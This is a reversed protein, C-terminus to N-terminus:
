LKWEVGVLAYIGPQQYGIEETNEQDFLNEIRGYLTFEQNLQARGFVDVRTYDATEKDGNWRLRPGTYYLNAGLSYQNEQYAFGLNATNDAVQVTQFREGNKESWADTYTYNANLNWNQNIWYQGVLEVGSSQGTDRNLYTGGFTGDPNVQGVFAIVNDLETRWYTLM